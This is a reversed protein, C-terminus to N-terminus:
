VKKRSSKVSFSGNKSLLMRLDQSQEGARNRFGLLGPVFGFKKDQGM